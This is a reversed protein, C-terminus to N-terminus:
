LYGDSKLGEEIYYNILEDKSMNRRGCAEEIAQAKSADFSINVDIGKSITREDEKWVDELKDKPYTKVQETLERTDDATLNKELVFMATDIQKEVSQDELQNAITVAKRVDLKEDGIDRSSKSLLKKVKESRQGPNKTLEWIEPVDYIDVYRKVTREALGTLKSVKSIKKSEDEGDMDEYLNGIVEIDRWKPVEKRHRNEVFSKARAETDSLELIKCPVERLGAEVAANYRRSGAVIGYEVDEDSVPRVILDQDIGHDRISRILEEDYDWEGGRHNTKDIALKDVDIRKRSGSQIEKTQSM